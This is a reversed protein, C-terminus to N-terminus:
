HIINFKELIIIKELVFKLNLVKFINIEGFYIKLIEM